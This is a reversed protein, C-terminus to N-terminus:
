NKKIILYIGSSLISLGIIFPLSLCLYYKVPNKTKTIREKLVIAEGFELESLLTAFIFFAGFPLLIYPGIENPDDVFPFFGSLIFVLAFSIITLVKLFQNM